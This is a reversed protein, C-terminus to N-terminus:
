RALSRFRRIDQVAYAVLQFIFCSIGFSFVGVSIVIIWSPSPFKYFVALLIAIANILLSCISFLCSIMMMRLRSRYWKNRYLLQPKLETGFSRGVQESVFAIFIAVVSGATASMGAIGLSLNYLFSDSQDGSHSLSPTQATQFYSITILPIIVLMSFIWVLFLILDFKKM